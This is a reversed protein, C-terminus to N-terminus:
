GEGAEGSGGPQAGDQGTDVYCLPYVSHPANRYLVQQLTQWVERERERDGPLALRFETLVKNRHLDFATRLQEGYVMASAVAGRYALWSLACGSWFCALFLRGDAEVWVLFVGSGVAFSASLLSVALMQDMAARADAISTSVGDPLLSALRPWMYVASIGYRREPYQEASRLVNGLETPRLDTQWTTDSTQPYGRYMREYAAEGQAQLKPDQPAETAAGVQGELKHYRDWHWRQGCYTLGGGGPFAGWYGEYLRAIANLLSALLLSFFGVLALFGAILLLQVTGSRASWAEVDAALTGRGISWIAVLSACFILSPFFTTLLLRRDLINTVQTLVASFL